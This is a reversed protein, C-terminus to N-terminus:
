GASLTPRDDRMPLLLLAYSFRSIGLAVAAGLWVAHATLFPRRLRVDGLGTIMTIPPRITNTDPKPPLRMM